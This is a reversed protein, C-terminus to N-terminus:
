KIKRVKGSIATSETTDTTLHTRSGRDSNKNRPAGSRNRRIIEDLDVQQLIEESIENDIDEVAFSHTHTTCCCQLRETADM